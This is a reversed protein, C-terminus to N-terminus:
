RAAAKMKGFDWTFPPCRLHGYNTKLQENAWVGANPFFNETFPKDNQATRITEEAWGQYALVADRVQKLNDATPNLRYARYFHFARSILAYHNYSMEALRVWGLARPDGAAQQRAADLFGRLKLLTDASYLSAFTEDAGAGVGAMVWDDMWSRHNELQEYLLDYYQKMAPAAKRFTLSIYEEYVKAPDLAPDTALRGITYYTPGEGGWNENGGCWYIGLVGHAHWNCLKAAALAPVFRPALGNDYYLGMNYAYVTTGGPVAKHWYDLAKDHSGFPRQLTETLCVEVMTNPPYSTFQTPPPVTPGYILLHVKRDAHKRGVLEIIKREANHVQDAPSLQSCQPCQCPQFGDSHGLAVIDYGADFKKITWDAVLKPLDPNTSCYQPNGADTPKVRKGDRMAFYEPHTDYLTAPVGYVWTHGGASFLKAACRFSNALSWDGQDVFRGHVYMFPPEYSIDLEDPVSLTRSEPVYLGMPTPQLWRFGLRDLLGFVVRLSGRAGSYGDIIETDRGLLFLRGGRVAIRYGDYKLDRDTIGAAKAMRTKGLSILTGPLNPSEPVIHLEAGGAMKLYKALTQAAQQELSTAQEPVMIKGLASGDRVLDLGFSTPGPVLLVLLVYTLRKM